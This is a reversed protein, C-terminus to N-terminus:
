APINKKNKKNEKPKKKTKRLDKAIEKTKKNENPKIAKQDEFRPKGLTQSGSLLGGGGRPGHPAHLLMVKGAERRGRKGKSCKVDKGAEMPRTQDM